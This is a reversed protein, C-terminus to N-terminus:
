KVPSALALSDGQETLWGDLKMSLSRHINEYAKVGVLNRQQLPDHDLDYLEEAPRYQYQQILFQAWPDVQALSDWSNWYAGAGDYRNIDSHNTHFHEPRLNRIYQYRQDRVTRMPYENKNGDGTHTAFIFKRHDAQPEKFIRTFSRGDLSDSYSGGVLEILTPLLDVWSVMAQTRQGQPVVGPWSIVLPVRISYDYLNWKGFPWQSGHDSSFVSIREKGLW